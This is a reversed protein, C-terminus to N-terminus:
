NAYAGKQKVEKILIFELLNETDLTGVLQNNEMVLMLNSKNHYVLEFIDALLTEINLFVLNKNMANVIPTNEGKESLAIIIQDRNLTGVPQSNATILFIKSQSDLLLEIARKIPQNADITQYQKMVVDRVTYGKLLYKSATYETEMQAGMIVFIGIFILFPNSFFGIFIFGIALLQGIRAAIKTATHRQFKFALLARLIRGGDMPFAPILNFIALALNVILFNLLFNHSNIGGSLQTMLLEENEPVTVFISTLLALFLNVMPGAFAVILEEIPKEPLKELRALGGIPLLTIDKTKIGYNKAALAHGLEHLVVTIFISLIFAISWTIQLINYGSRYNVFIIFLLLLSFTWHIFLGIGAVKGLKFSGKM